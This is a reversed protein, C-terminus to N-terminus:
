FNINAGVILFIIPFSFQFQICYSYQLVPVHSYCSHSGYMNTVTHVSITVTLIPITYLLQVTAVTCIPLLTCQYLSLSSQFQICYSVRIEPDPGTPSGGTGQVLFFCNFSRWKEDSASTMAAASVQNSPCSGSKKKSHSAFTLAVPKSTYQAEHPTHQIFGSNPGRLNNGEPRALSKDAGGRILKWSLWNLSGLARFMCARARAFCLLTEPPAGRPCLCM